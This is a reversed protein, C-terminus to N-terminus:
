QSEIYTKLNMLRKEYMEQYKEESVKILSKGQSLKYLRGLSWTVDFLYNSLIYAKLRPTVSKDNSEEIYAQLFTKQFDEDLDNIAFIYALDDAPDGFRADDWDIFYPSSNNWIVNGWGIDGHCLSFTNNSWSVESDQRLLDQLMSCAKNILEKDHDVAVKYIKYPYDIRDKITKQAYDKLTGNESPLQANGTSFSTKHNSHISAIKTALVKIQETSLDKFKIHSGEIFESVLVPKNNIGNREYFLVRPCINTDKLIDIYYKENTLSDPRRNNDAIRLVVPYKNGGDSLELKFNLNHLGADLKACVINNINKLTFLEPDLSYVYSIIDDENMLLVIAVFFEEFCLLKLVLM